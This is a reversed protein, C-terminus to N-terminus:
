GLHDPQCTYSATVDPEPPPLPDDLNLGLLQAAEVVAAHLKHVGPSGTNALDRLVDGVTVPRRPM